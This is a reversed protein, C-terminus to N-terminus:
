RTGLRGVAATAPVAFAPRKALLKLLASAEPTGCRELTEVVRRALVIDKDFPRAALRTADTVAPVGKAKGALFPVAEAPHTAYRWIAKYAASADDGRLAEWLVALEKANPAAKKEGVVGSLDWVLGTQAHYDNSMLYRGDRSFAFRYIDDPGARDLRLRPKTTAVEWLWIGGDPHLAALTRGDASVAMARRAWIQRWTPGVAEGWASGDANRFRMQPDDKQPTSHLPTLLGRTVITEGDPTVVYGLTDGKGVQQWKGAPQEIYLPDVYSRWHLERGGPLKVQKPCTLDFPRYPGIFTDAAPFPPNVTVIKPPFKVERTPVDMVRLGCMDSKFLGGLVATKGDRTFAFTYLSEMNAPKLGRAFFEDRKKEDEHHRLRPIVGTAVAVPAIADGFSVFLTQSDPSFAMGVLPPNGGDVREDTSLLRGKGTAVNWARVLHRTPFHCHEASALTKGDPSFALSFILGHGDRDNPELKASWLRKGTAAAVILRDRAAVAVKSGDPSLAVETPIFATYTFASRWTFDATNWTAVTCRWPVIPENPSFGPDISGVHIDVTALTKGDASLAWLATPRERVLKGARVDWVRLQAPRFSERSGGAFLFRGDASFQVGAESYHWSTRGLERAAAVDWLVLERGQWHGSENCVERGTTFAALTADLNIALPYLAHPGRHKRDGLRQNPVLTPITTPSLPQVEAAKPAVLAPGDAKTFPVVPVFPPEPDPMDNPPVPGPPAPKPRAPFIWGGPEVFNSTSYMVLPLGFALSVGLAFWAIFRRM